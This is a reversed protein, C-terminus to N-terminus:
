IREVHTSRGIDHKMGERCTPAPSKESIPAHGAVRNGCECLGGGCRSFDRPADQRPLSERHSRPFARKRRLSTAAVNILSERAPSLLVTRNVVICPAVIALGDTERRWVAQRGEIEELSNKSIGQEPPKTIANESMKDWSYLPKCLIGQEKSLLSNKCVFLSINGRFQCM